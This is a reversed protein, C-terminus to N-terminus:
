LGAGVSDSVPVGAEECAARIAQYAEKRRGQRLMDLVGRAIIGDFFRKRDVDTPLAAKAGDRLTALLDHGPTARRPDAAAGRALTLRWDVLRYAAELTSRTAEAVVAPDIPVDPNEAALRRRGGLITYRVM